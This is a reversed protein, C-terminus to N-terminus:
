DEQVSSTDLDSMFVGHIVLAGPASLPTAQTGGALAGALLAAASLVIFKRM